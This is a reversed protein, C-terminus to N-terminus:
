KIYTFPMRKNHIDKKTYISIASIKKHLIPLNAHMVGILVPIFSQESKVKWPIDVFWDTGIPNTQENEAKPTYFCFLLILSLIISKSYRNM